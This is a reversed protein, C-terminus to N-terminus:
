PKKATFNHYLEEANIETIESIEELSKGYIDAIKRVIYLLNKSQNRKGRKPHPSLYPSDTEVVIYEPPIAQISKDLESNKFTLIGNIGIKFGSLETIREAQDLSGTFSHFVGTLRNDNHSQIIELAEEFANRVHIIVPLGYDKAWIIQQSFAAEQQKRCSTDWYLDIGTEGVAIYQGSDLEKKVIALEEEYNKKVSSPHLGAAAFCNGPFKQLLQKQGDIYQSDIAPLVMRKVGADAAERICQDRDTDFQETYLHTHTDTFNLM